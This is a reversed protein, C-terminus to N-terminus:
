IDALRVSFTPSDTGASPYEVERPYRQANTIKVRRTYRPQTGQRNVLDVRGCLIGGLETSDSVLELFSGPQRFGTGRCRCVHKSEAQTAIAADLTATRPLGMCELLTGVRGSYEENVYFDDLMGFLVKKERVRAMKFTFSRYTHWTEERGALTLFITTARGLYECCESDTMTFPKDVPIRKSIMVMMRRIKRNFADCHTVLSKSITKLRESTVPIVGDQEMLFDNLGGVERLVVEDPPHLPNRESREPLHRRFIALFEGERQKQRAKLVRNKAEQVGLWKGRRARFELNERVARTRVEVFAELAKPDYKVRTYEEVVAEFEPFYFWGDVKSQEKPRSARRSMYSEISGPLVMEFESVFLGFDLGRSEFRTRPGLAQYADEFSRISNGSHAHTLKDNFRVVLLHVCKLSYCVDCFRAHAQTFRLVEDEIGCAKTLILRSRSRAGWVRLLQRKSVTCKREFMLSAYQAENVTPPGDPLEISRRAVRWYPSAGTTMLLSHLRRSSRSLELLDKPHLHSM